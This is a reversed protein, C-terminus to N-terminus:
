YGYDRMVQMNFSTFRSSLTGHHSSLILAVPFLGYLPGLFCGLCFVYVTAAVLYWLVITAMAAMSFKLVRHHNRAWFSLTEHAEAIAQRGPLQSYKYKKREEGEGGGSGGGGRSRIGPIIKLMEVLRGESWWRRAM